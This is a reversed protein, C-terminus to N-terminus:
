ATNRSAPDVPDASNMGGSFYPLRTQPASHIGREWNGLSPFPRLGTGNLVSGM